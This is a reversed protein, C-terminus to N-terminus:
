SLLPQFFDNSNLSHSDNDDSLQKNFTVYYIYDLDAIFLTQFIYLTLLRGDKRLAEDPSCFLLIILILPVFSPLNPTSLLFTKEKSLSEGKNRAVEGSQAEGTSKIQQAPSLHFILSQQANQLYLFGDLVETFLVQSICGYIVIVSTGSLWSM